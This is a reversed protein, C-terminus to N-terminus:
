SLISKHLVANAKKCVEFCGDAQGSVASAEPISAASWAPKKTKAPRPAYKFTLSSSVGNRARARHASMVTSTVPAALTENRQQADAKKRQKAMYQKAQQQVKSNKCTAAYSGGQGLLTGQQKATKLATKYAKKARTVSGNGRRRTGIHLQQGLQRERRRAQM